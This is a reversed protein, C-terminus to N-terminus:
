SNLERIWKDIAPQVIRAKDRDIQQKVLRFTRYGKFRTTKNRSDVGDLWGGYVVRSDWVTRGVTGRQIAIRSQYFGTPHQLVNALRAHIRHYAEVAILENAATVMRKGAAKTRARDFIVSRQNKDTRVQFFPM